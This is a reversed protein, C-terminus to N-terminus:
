DEIEGLSTTTTANLSDLLDPSFAALQMLM